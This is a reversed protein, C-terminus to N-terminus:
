PRGISPCMITYKLLLKIQKACPFEYTAKNKQLNYRGHFNM